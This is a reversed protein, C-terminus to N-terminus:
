QPFYQKIDATLFDKEKTSLFPLDEINKYKANKWSKTFALASYIEDYRGAATHISIIGVPQMYRVNDLNKFATVSVITGNPHRIERITAIGNDHRKKRYQLWYDNEEKKTIAGSARLVAVIQRLLGERDDPHIVESNYILRAAEEKMNM